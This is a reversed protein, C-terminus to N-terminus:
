RQHGFLAATSISAKARLMAGSNGTGSTGVISSYTRTLLQALEAFHQDAPIPPQPRSRNSRRLVVRFDRRREYRVPDFRPTRNRSLGQLAILIFALQRLIEVDIQDEVGHVARQMEQEHDPM